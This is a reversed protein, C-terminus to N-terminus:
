TIPNTFFTMKPLNQCLRKLFHSYIQRQLKASFVDIIKVVSNNLKLTLDRRVKEFLEDFNEFISFIAISHSQHFITMKSLNQCLRKFFHSFIQRQLKTHLMIIIELLCNRLKLALDRRKKEFSETLIKSFQFFFARNQSQHAITM